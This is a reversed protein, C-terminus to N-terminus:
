HLHGDLHHDLADLVRADVTVDFKRAFFKGSDLITPLDNITLVDPHAFGPGGMRMYRLGDESIRLEPDNLLISHFLSESALTTRRYYGVVEPHLKSFELVRELSRRSLTFWDLGTYCRFGESFPTRARRIGVRIGSGRPLSWVHVLSLHATSRNHAASAARRVVTPLRAAHRSGPVDYYRYHYRAAFWDRNGEEDWVRPLVLRSPMVYADYPTSALLRELERLPRTPYDQGSILVLWDFQANRAAWEFSRLLGLATEWKGWQIGRTHRLVHVDGLAGLAGDNLRSRAEDHQVLIPGGHERRLRTALRVVQDPNTHSAILFALRPV